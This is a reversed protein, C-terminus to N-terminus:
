KAVAFLWGFDCFFSVKKGEKPVTEQKPWRGLGGVRSDEGKEIM